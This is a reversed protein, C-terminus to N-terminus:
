NNPPPCRSVPDGAIRAAGDELTVLRLRRGEAFYGNAEKVTCFGDLFHATFIYSPTARRWNAPGDFTIVLVDGEAEVSEVTVPGYGRGVMFRLRGAFDEANRPEGACGALLALALLAGAPAKGAANM